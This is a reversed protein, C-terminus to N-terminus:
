RTPSSERALRNAPPTKAEKPQPNDAQCAAGALLSLVLTLFGRMPHPPFDVQRM